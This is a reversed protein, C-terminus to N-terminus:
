KSGRRSKSSVTHPEFSYFNCFPFWIVAFESYTSAVSNISFNRQPSAPTKLVGSSGCTLHGVNEKNREALAQHPPKGRGPTRVSNGQKPCYLYFWKDNKQMFSCVENNYFFINNVEQMGASVKSASIPPRSVPSHCVTGCFVSRM